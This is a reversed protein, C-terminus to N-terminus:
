LTKLFEIDKKYKYNLLKVKKLFDKVSDKGYVYLTKDGKITSHKIGYKSFVNSIQKILSPNKMNLSMAPYPNKYYNRKDFYMCGEADYIGAICALLIESNANLIEKPIVVDRTKRGAEIKFRRTIMLFLDKSYLNFRIANSKFEYRIKPNIGFLRKPIPLILEEYFEKEKSANGTFQTLYYRGYKNTFGDGILLGIFYSLEEGLPQYIDFRPVKSKIREIAIERGRDFIYKHKSYAVKGGKIAGWNEQLISVNKNFYEKSDKDLRVSFKVFLEEPITLKGGKYRDFTQRQIDLEQYFDKWRKIKNKELVKEFFLNRSEGTNFLIRKKM